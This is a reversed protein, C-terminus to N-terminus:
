HAHHHVRLPQAAAIPGNVFYHVVFHGGNLQLTAMHHAPFAPPAEGTLVKTFVFKEFEGCAPDVEVWVVPRNFQLQLALILAGRPLQLAQEKNDSLEYKWVKKMAEV